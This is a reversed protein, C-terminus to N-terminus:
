GGFLDSKPDLARARRYAVVAADANGREAELRSLTMWTRWNTSEAQTAGRAAAVASGLRGELELVLAQQLKPTAAYPQISAAKDADSM